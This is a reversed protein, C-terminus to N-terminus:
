GQPQHPGGFAPVRDDEAPRRSFRCRCDHHLDAGRDDEAARERGHVSGRNQRIHQAAKLEGEPTQIQDNAQLLGRLIAKVTNPNKVLFDDNALLLNYTKFLGPARQLVHAGQVKETATWLWPEWCILGDIDGTIFAPIQDPASMHILGIKEADLDHKRMYLEILMTATTGKTLALKTGELQKPSIIEKRVVMGQDISFDALPALCKAPGKHAMLGIAPVDGTATIHVSGGALAENMEAASNFYTMKVDLGQSAFLQNAIALPFQASQGAGKAQGLVVSKTELAQAYAPPASLLGAAGATASAGLLQLTGRRTLGGDVPTRSM